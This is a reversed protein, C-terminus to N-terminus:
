IRKLTTNSASPLDLRETDTDDEFIYRLEAEAAAQAALFQAIRAARVEEYEEDVEESLYM